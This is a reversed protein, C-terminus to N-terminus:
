DPLQILHRDTLYSGSAVADRVVFPRLDVNRLDVLPLWHQTLHAENSVVDHRDLSVLFFHEAQQVVQAQYRFYNEVCFLYQAAVIRANTEEEFEKRLRTEFTDGVEYEGGIFAYCSSPDDTPKQVLVKEDNVVIGAVRVRPIQRSAVAQFFQEQTLAM